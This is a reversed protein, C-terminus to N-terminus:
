RITGLVFSRKKEEGQRPSNLTTEEVSFAKEFFPLSEKLKDKSGYRIELLADEASVATGTKVLM